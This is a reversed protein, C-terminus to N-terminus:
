ALLVMFIMKYQSYSWNLVEMNRSVSINKKCEFAIRIEDRKDPILRPVSSLEIIGYWKPM